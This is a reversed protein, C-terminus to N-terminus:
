LDLAVSVLVAVVAIILGWIAISEETAERNKRRYYREEHNKSGM